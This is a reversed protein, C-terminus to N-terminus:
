LTLPAFYISGNGDAGWGERGKLRRIWGIQDM